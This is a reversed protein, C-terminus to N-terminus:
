QSNNQVTAVVVSLATDVNTTLGNIRKEVVQEVQCIGGIEM